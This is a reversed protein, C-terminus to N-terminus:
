PKKSESDFLNELIYQSVYGPGVPGRCDKDLAMWNGGTLTSYDVVTKVGSPSFIIVNSKGFKYEWTDTGVHVKRYGKHESM